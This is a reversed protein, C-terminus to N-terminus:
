TTTAPARRTPLDARVPRHQRLGPRLAAPQGAPRGRRGPGQGGLLLGREPTSWTRAARRAATVGNSSRLRRTGYRDGQVKDTQPGELTAWLQPSRTSLEATPSGRDCQRSPLAGCRHRQRARHRLHQLPQGDPRPRHLRRGRQPSISRATWGSRVPRVPQPHDLQRSGSSATAFARSWWSPSTPARRRRLRQPRSRCPGRGDRRAPGAAPVARRGARRRRGRDTGNEAEVYWRATDVGVAALGLFLTPVMISIMIAVYGAEDGSADVATLFRRVPARERRLDRDAAARFEDIARDALQVTSGFLGTLFDHNVVMAVGVSEFRSPRPAPSAPASPAALGLQRRLLPVRDQAPRWTYRVCNPVGTCSTPLTQNGTAGPYGKDNAQYVLIYDISDRPLASGAKQIADAALQALNPAGNAPCPIDDAPNPTCAGADAATSAM